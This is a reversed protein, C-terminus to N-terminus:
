EKIWISRVCINMRFFFQRCTKAFYFKVISNRPFNIQDDNRQEELLETLRNNLLNKQEDLLRGILYRRRESQNMSIEVELKGCFM